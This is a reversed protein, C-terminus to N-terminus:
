LGQHRIIFRASSPPLDFGDYAYCIVNTMADTKKVLDGASAPTCTTDSDYVYSELGTEPNQESTLRGLSDYAYTRTQTTASQANQTVATLKDNVDYTYITLYGTAATNQGCPAGPWQMTGATIECVSVLRGLADYEYQKAKINEGTPPPGNTILVDNQSYSYTTTGGGSDASTLVRGMGDYTTTVGAANSNLAGATTQLPFTVKSALGVTNYDTEQTDYQPSGPAQRVQTLRTRGLPDFNVLADSTSSTGFPMSAEVSTATYALTAVNAAADTLTHPRWFNADNYAVTTPQGNEDTASTLVGGTCNWAMSRTLNLPESVSTPFFNGCSGTGYTYTTHAANVDTAALINGTDWYTYTKAITTTYGDQETPLGYSNYLFDTKSDLGGRWQPYVTRRM